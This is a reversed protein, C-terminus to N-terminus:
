SVKKDPMTFPRQVLDKPGNGIRNSIPRAVDIPLVVGGNKQRSTKLWQRALRRAADVLILTGLIFLGGAFVLLSFSFLFENVFMELSTCNAYRFLLAAPALNRM